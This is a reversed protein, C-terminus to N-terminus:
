SQRNLRALETALHDWVHKIRVNKHLAEHATLWIPLPPLNLEIDLREVLPEADGIVTQMAGVGCGACVLQWFAAQDDCRVGFFHRDIDFGVDKMHSIILKSRDFGVFPMSSLDDLVLPRGWTEIISHAAYLALPQQAVKRTIVELQQPQYMRVAIDAERFILNESADTPVLEIEIEPQRRRLDAIIPPLIYHSVVMSATIRVTGALQTDRGAAANEFRQSAAAMARAPEVLSQGAETLDFGKATRVFLSVALVSEMAKIHRGLTPQSLQLARAAATLSGGDAVALFSQIYAWDM